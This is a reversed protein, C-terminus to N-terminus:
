EGNAVVLGGREISLWGQSYAVDDGLNKEEGDTFRPFFERFPPDACLSPPEADIRAFKCDLLVRQDDNYTLEAMTEKSEVVSKKMRIPLTDVQRSTTCIREPTIDRDAARYVPVSVVAGPETEHVQEHRLHQPLDRQGIDM